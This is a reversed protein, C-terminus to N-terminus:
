AKHFAEYYSKVLGTYGAAGTRAGVPKVGGAYCADLIVVVKDAEMDRIKGALDSFNICTTELDTLDADYPILYTTDHKGYYTGHGSFYFVVLDEPAASMAIKNFTTLINRRTAESDTLTFVHEDDFCGGSRPSKLFAALNNVDKVPSKLPQIEFGEAQPYDAIGVLLAWCTGQTLAAPQASKAVVFGKDQSQASLPTIIIAGIVMCTLLCVIMSRFLPKLIAKM